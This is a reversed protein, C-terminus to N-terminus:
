HIQTLEDDEIHSVFKTEHKKYHKAEGKVKIEGVGKSDVELSDTKVNIECSGVGKQCVKISPCEIYGIEMAGVGDLTLEIPMGQCIYDSAELEGVGTLSIKSIDPSTVYINIGNNEGINTNNRQTIVLEDDEITIETRNLLHKEGEARYSYTDGQQYFVKGVGKMNIANFRITDPCVITSDADNIYRSDHDIHDQVYDWNIYLDSNQAKVAMRIGNSISFIVAALWILWLLLTTIGSHPKNQGSRLLRYLGYIPLVAAIMIAFVEGMIMWKEASFFESTQGAFIPLDALAPISFMITFMGIIFLLMPIFLAAVFMILTAKFLVAIVSLGGSLCGNNNSRKPQTEDCHSNLLETKISDPNVTQGKMKLREEATRAEPACFWLLLYALVLYIGVYEMLLLTGIAFALRWILPDKGGFYHTAGSIVGGVLKDKPDRFFRRQKSESKKKDNDQGYIGSTSETSSSDNASSETNTTASPISNAEEKDQMQEPNGIKQMVEKVQEITISEIGQEKYEWFLEAVRHELDDCIEDGGPQRSFYSTLNNLYQELLQHADQDITYVTGFLNINITTKM